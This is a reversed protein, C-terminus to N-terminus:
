STAQALRALLARWARQQAGTPAGWADVAKRAGDHLTTLVALTHHGSGKSAQLSQAELRPATRPRAGGQSAHYARGHEGAIATTWAHVGVPTLLAQMDGEGLTTNAGGALSIQLTPTSFFTYLTATLSPTHPDGRLAAHGFALFTDLFRQADARRAPDDNWGARPLFPPFPAARAEVMDFFPDFRDVDARLRDVWLGADLPHNPALPGKGPTPSPAAALCAADLRLHDRHNQVLLTPGPKGANNARMRIQFGDPQSRLWLVGACFILGDDTRRALLASNDMFVCAVAQTGLGPVPLVVPARRTKPDWGGDHLGLDDNPRALLPWGGTGRPFCAAAFPIPHKGEGPYAGKPGGTFLRPREFTGAGALGLAFRHLMRHSDPPTEARPNTMM